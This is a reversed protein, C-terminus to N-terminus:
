ESVPLMEKIICGIAYEADPIIEKIHVVRVLAHFPLTIDAKGPDINVDLEEGVMLGHSTHFQLGTASLDKIRATIVNSSGLLRVTIDSDVTMRRFGRKEESDVM